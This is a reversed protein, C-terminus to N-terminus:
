MHPKACIATQGKDPGLSGLQFLLTPASILDRTKLGDKRLRYLSETRPLWRVVVFRPM